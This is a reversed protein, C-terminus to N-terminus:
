QLDIYAMVYGCQATSILGFYWTKKLSIRNRLTDKLPETCPCCKWHEINFYAYASIHLLNVAAIERGDNDDDLAQQMHEGNQLEFLVALWAPM